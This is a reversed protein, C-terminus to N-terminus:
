TMKNECLIDSIVVAYWKSHWSNLWTFYPFTLHTISGAIACNTEEIIM